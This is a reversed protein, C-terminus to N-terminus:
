HFCQESFLTAVGFHFTKKETVSAAMTDPKLINWNTSSDKLEIAHIVPSEINVSYIKFNSGKILSMINVAADIKKASLLTDTLFQGTGIVQLEDVEISVKPFHRFFSIDVAKFNVTATLKKNLEKKILTVMQGKFLYPVAIALVLLTVLLILCIKIIKKLM